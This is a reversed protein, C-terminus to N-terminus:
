EGEVEKVEVEREAEELDVGLIESVNKATEKLSDLIGVFREMNIIVIDDETDVHVVGGALGNHVDVLYALLSYVHNDQAQETSTTENLEVDEVNEIEKNM